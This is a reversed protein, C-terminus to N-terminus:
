LLIIFYVVIAFTFARVVRVKTQRNYMCVCVWTFLCMFVQLAKVVEVVHMCVVFISFFDVHCDLFLLVCFLVFAVCRYFCFLM